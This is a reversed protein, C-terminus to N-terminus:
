SSPDKFEFEVIETSDKAAPEYKWQKVADIAATVLLPSGGIVRTDKVRGAASITVEVKVKGAAKVRKALAPYVPPVSSKLTRKVPEVGNVQSFLAPPLGLFAVIAALLAIRIMRARVM